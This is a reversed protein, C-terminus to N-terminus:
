GVEVFTVAVPQRRLARDFEGRDGRYGLKELAAASAALSFALPPVRPPTCPIVQVPRSAVNLLSTRLDHAVHISSASM